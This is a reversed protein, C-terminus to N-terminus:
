PDTASTPKAHQGLLPKFLKRALLKRTLLVHGFVAFTVLVTPLLSYPFYLVWSNIHDANAGFAHLNPSALAALLAIVLLSGIGLVNWARIIRVPLVSTWACYVAILLAGLGIFIDLNYGLLSFEIPMIGLYAARLMLLELPLRFIQLAVLTEIRLCRVLDDGISGAYGMGVAITLGLVSAVLIAFPPPLLDLRSFLGLWDGVANALLIALVAAAVWAAARKSRQRLVTLWAVSMALVLALMGGATLADFAPRQIVILSFPLTM